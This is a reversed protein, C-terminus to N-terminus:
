QLRKDHDTDKLEHQCSIRYPYLGMNKMVTSHVTGLSLGVDQSLRRMSKNPSHAMTESIVNVKQETLITPRGSRPADHVSGHERFKDILNRVTNRHPLDTAPFRELFKKVEDTCEGNARFVYEVLFIREEVSLVMNSTSNFYHAQSASTNLHLTRNMILNLNLSAISTLASIILQSITRDM